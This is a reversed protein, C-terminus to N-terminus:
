RATARKNPDFELNRSGNNNIYADVTLGTPPPEAFASIKLSMRGYNKESRSTFYFSRTVSRQWDPANAPMDITVVPHYGEAPAENPYVDNMEILGGNVVALTVTWDFRQAPQLRIPNRTLKVTLDGGNAVKKGTELDFTVPTGDVPIGVRNLTTHILKEPGKEKWVTFVVPNNPNPTYRENPGYLLSYIFLKNNSRFEYGDKSIWVSLHAGKMGKFSFDGALDTSTFYDENEGGYWVKEVVVGGKVRAGVVPNGNQDVVKGYFEIPQHNQVALIGSMMQEKSQLPAVVSPVTPIPTSAPTTRPSQAQPPTPMSKTVNLISTSRQWLLWCSVALILTVSLFALIRKKM